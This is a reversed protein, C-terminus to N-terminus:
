LRSWLVAALCLWLVIEGAALFCTLAQAVPAEPTPPALGLRRAREAEREFAEDVGDFWYRVPKDEGCLLSSIRFTMELWDVRRTDCNVRRRQDFVFDFSNM